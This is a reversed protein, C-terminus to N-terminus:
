RIRDSRHVRSLLGRRQTLFKDLDVVVGGRAFADALERVRAGRIVFRHRTSGPILPVLAALEGGEALLYAACEMDATEIRSESTEM